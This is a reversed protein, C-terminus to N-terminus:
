NKTVYAFRSEDTSREVCQYCSEDTPQPHGVGQQITYTGFGGSCIGFEKWCILFSFGL